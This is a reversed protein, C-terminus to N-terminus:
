RPQRMNRTYMIVQTQLSGCSLALCIEGSMIRQFAEMAMPLDEPHILSQFSRGLWEERAWGTIKEFAPNLSTIIGDPSVTAILDNASEVLRRYREESERVAKEAQKRETIDSIATRCMGPKGESDRVALSDLQAYFRNGSKGALELECTQRSGSRLVERIHLYFINQSEPAVYISFPTKILFSREIGLKNAGTLNVEIIRGNKDFTFYGVPAFDYLDSYRNRSEELETQARRLEENQMELEIQHTRLEHILSQVDETALEKPEEAQGSLIKEARRRLDAQKKQHLM